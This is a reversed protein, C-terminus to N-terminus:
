YEGSAGSGTSVANIKDEIIFKQVPIVDVVSIVAINKYKKYATAIKEDYKNEKYKPGNYAKAFADWNHNKLYKSLGHTKVFGCFAKLHEGESIHMDQVFIEVDLWGCVRYNFGMIQFKGWSASMLASKKDLTMAEDLRIYEKIGGKYLSKNWVPSSINPNSIDYKHSTYKSFIHAEFLIVPRGDDFFGNKGSEVEAVAKIAAIEIDLMDAAFEFDKETLLKNM